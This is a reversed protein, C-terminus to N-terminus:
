ASSTSQWFIRQMGKLRSRTATQRIGRLQRKSLEEVAQRADGVSKQVRGSIQKALGKVQQEKSGVPKGADEQIKGAVGKAAGKVQDRNM